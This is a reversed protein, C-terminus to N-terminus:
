YDDTTGGLELQAMLVGVEEFAKAIDLRVNRSDTVSIYQGQPIAGCVSDLLEEFTMRHGTTPSRVNAEIPSRLEEGVGIILLNVDLHNDRIFGEVTLPRKRKQRDKETFIGKLADLSYRTSSNDQGDTLAIVWRHESSEVLNLDELAKGLADYFATAYNPYRLSTLKQIIPSDQEDEYNGKATLPLLQEYSSNFVIISVQDQPNVQTDVIEKAGTVAARIRDQARMSGSYDIVFIVSKKFLISRRLREAKRRVDHSSEDMEDLVDALKQMSYVVLWFEETLNGLRIADNFATKAKRWDKQESHFEGVHYNIYALSRDYNEYEATEKAENFRSLAQSQRGQRMLVLGMADFRKALGRNNGITKDIAEADELLSLAKDFKQRDMEVLAMNHYVSAVRAMADNEESGDAKTKELLKNAIDLATQYYELANDTDGRQRFINGINLYMTQEGAAIGLKKSIELLNQYNALARRLDGRVFAQNGFRCAEQFS